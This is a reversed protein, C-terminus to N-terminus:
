VCVGTSITNINGTTARSANRSEYTYPTFCEPNDGLIVGETDMGDPSAEFKVHNSPACFSIDFLNHRQYKVLYWPWSWKRFYLKMQKVGL